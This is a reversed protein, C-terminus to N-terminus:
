LPQRLNGHFDEAFEPLGSLPRYVQQTHIYTHQSYKSRCLYWGILSDFIPWHWRIWTLSHWGSLVSDTFYLL